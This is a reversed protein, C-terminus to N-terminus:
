KKAKKSVFFLLFNENRSETSSFLSFFSYVKPRREEQQRNQRTNIEKMVNKSPM